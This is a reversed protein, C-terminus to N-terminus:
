NDYFRITDITNRASPTAYCSYENNIINDSEDIDITTGTYTSSPSDTFNDFISDLETSNLRRPTNIFDFHRHTRNLEPIPLVDYINNINEFNTNNRGPTHASQSGQSAFRGILYNDDDKGVGWYSLYLDNLLQKLMSDYTLNNENIYTKITNFLNNINQKKENKETENLLGINRSNYLTELVKQRFSFKIVTNDQIINRNDDLLDPLVFIEEEITNLESEVIDANLVAKIGTVNDTKIHYFKNMESILVNETISTTWENNKWDYIFGNDIKIQINKLCPYLVKHLGEGYVVTASELNDIFHYESNFLSSLKYLLSSNHDKGFGINITLYDNSIHNILQNPDQEGSTPEGDTMFIHVCEFNTAKNKKKFNDIHKNATILANEINTVSDAQIKELIKIINEINDENIIIPKIITKVVANFTNIQVHIDVDLTSIYNMISKLTKIAYELKTVNYNCYEDMSGTTDVTFLLFLPQKTLEVKNLELKLIGFKDNENDFLQIPCNNLNNIEIYANKIQQM